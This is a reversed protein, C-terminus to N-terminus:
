DAPVPAFGDISAVKVVETTGDTHLVLAEVHGGATAGAVVADKVYVIDLLVAHNSSTAESTKEAKVISNSNDLYFKYTNEYDKAAYENTAGALGSNGYYTGNVKIQDDSNRGTVVGDISTAKEIYTTAGIKVFLVVDGKKLGEYGVVNKVTNDASFANIVGPVKVQTDAG